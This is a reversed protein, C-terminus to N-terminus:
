KRKNDSFGGWRYQEYMQQKGQEAQSWISTGDDKQGTYLHEPLNYDVQTHCTYCVYYQKSIDGSYQCDHTVFRMKLSCCYRDPVKRGDFYAQREASVKARKVCIIIATLLIALGTIIPIVISFVRGFCKWAIKVGWITIIATIRKNFM